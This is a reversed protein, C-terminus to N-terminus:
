SLFLSWALLDDLQDRITTGRMSARAAVYHHGLGIRGRLSGNSLM